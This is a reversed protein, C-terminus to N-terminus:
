GDLAYVSLFSFAPEVNLTVGSDQTVQMQIVNGGAVNVVGTGVNVAFDGAVTARMRSFSLFGNSLFFNQRRDGASNAEWQITAVAVVRTVGAPVVVGDAQIAWGGDNFVFNEWPIFGGGLNPVSFANTRTVRAGSFAEAVTLDDSSAKLQAFVRDLDQAVKQVVGVKSGPDRCLNILSGILSTTRAM